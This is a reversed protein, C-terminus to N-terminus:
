AAATACRQRVVAVMRGHEDRTPSGASSDSRSGSWSAETERAETTAALLGILRADDLDAMASEYVSAQEPDEALGLSWAMELPYGLGWLLLVTRGRWARGDEPLRRYFPEPLYRELLVDSRDGV